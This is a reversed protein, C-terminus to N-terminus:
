RGQSRVIVAVLRPQQAQKVCVKRLKAAAKVVSDFKRRNRERTGRIESNIIVLIYIGLAEQVASLFLAGLVHRHYDKPRRMHNRRRGEFCEMFEHIELM